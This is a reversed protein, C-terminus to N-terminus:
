QNLWTAGSDTIALYNAATKEVMLDAPEVSVGNITWGITKEFIVNTLSDCLWFAGSSIENVSYPIEIRGLSTCSIFASMGIKEVGNGLDVYNLSTCYAFAQPGIEELGDGIIVSELKTCEAFASDGIYRTSNGIRVRELSTCNYFAYDGIYECSDPIIIEKLSDCGYFAEQEIAKIGDPLTITKFDYGYFASEDIGVVQNGDIEGPIILDDSLNYGGTIIVGGHIPRTTFQEAFTDTNDVVMMALYGVMVGIAIGAIALYFSSLVLLAVLMLSVILIVTGVYKKKRREAM